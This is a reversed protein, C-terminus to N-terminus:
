FTTYNRVRQDYVAAVTEADALDAASSVVRSALKYLLDVQKILGKARDAAPDFTQRATHQAANTAPMFYDSSTLKSNARLNDAASWLDTEFQSLNEM